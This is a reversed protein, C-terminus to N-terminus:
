HLLILVKCAYGKASRTFFGLQTKRISANGAKRYAPWVVFGTPLWLSLSMRFSTEKEKTRRNAAFGLGGAAARSM